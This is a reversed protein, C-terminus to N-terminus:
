SVAPQPHARSSDAVHATRTRALPREGHQLARVVDTWLAAAFRRSAPAHDGLLHEVRDWPMELVVSRERARNELRECYGDDGLLGIHGVARGPGALRLSHSARAGRMRTEVAGRAVIWLAAPLEGPPTLMAGRPVALRPLGQTVDVIEQRTFDCFFLLGGLYDIEGREASVEGISAHAFHDPPPDGALEDSSRRYLGDLRAIAQSGIAQVVQSAAPRVDHRLIEFASRALAWGVTATAARVTATRIGDGLLALEGVVEGPGISTLRVDDGGPM